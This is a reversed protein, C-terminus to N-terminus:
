VESLPLPSTTKANRSDNGFGNSTFMSRAATGATTQEGSCSSSSSGQISGGPIALWSPSCSSSECHFSSSITAKVIEHSSRNIIVSGLKITDQSVLRYRRLLAKIRFLLEKPDFPKVMYDDTGSLFGQEKDEIEGRATLMIVPIDYHERIERCLEHGNKAPMMIDVVALQVQEQELLRAAAEGDAAEIVGYGEKTLIFRLLTRIAPDDDAILVNMRM